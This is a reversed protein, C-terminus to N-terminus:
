PKVVLIESMGTNRIDFHLWTPSFAGDEIVTLGCDLWMEQNDLIEKRAEDPTMKKFNCDIARGYRHQSYKGKRIDEYLGSEQKKYYFPDPRFGRYQFNGGYHWDNIRMSEGFYVRMFQTLQILDEDLFWISKNGFYEYVRRPVFEKINFNSEKEDIIIKGDTKVEIM